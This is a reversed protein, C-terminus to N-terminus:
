ELIGLNLMAIVSLPEGTSDFVQLQWVAEQGVHWPTIESVVVVYGDPIQVFSYQCYANHIDDPSLSHSGFDAPLGDKMVILYKGHVGGVRDVKIESTDKLGYASKFKEMAVEAGDKVASFEKRGEGFGGDGLIKQGNSAIEGEKEPWRNNGNPPDVFREDGPYDARARNGDDLNKGSFKETPDTVTHLSNANVRGVGSCEEEKKLARQEKFHQRRRVEENREVDRPAPKPELLDLEDAAKVFKYEFSKDLIELRKAIKHESVVRATKRVINVMADKLRKFLNKLSEVLHMLKKCSALLDDIVTRLKGAWRAAMASVNRVIWPTALGGTGLFLLLNEGISGVVDCIADRVMDHVFQVIVSALTLSASMAGACAAAMEMHQTIDRQLARYARIAAGDMYGVDRHVIFSLDNANEKLSEEISAWTQAYSNVEGADGTLEELWDNLPYVHEILWAAGWSILTQIPNVMLAIGDIGASVGGLTVGVWSGEQLSRVLTEGDELLGLGALPSTEDDETAVRAIAAM